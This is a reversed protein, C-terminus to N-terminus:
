GAGRAHAPIQLRFGALFLDHELQAAVRRDDDVLVRIDRVGDIADDRTGEILTPLAANAHLPNEDVLREVGPHAIREDCLGALEDTAIREIFLGEDPGHDRLLLR